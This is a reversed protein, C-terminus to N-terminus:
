RGKTTKFLSAYLVYMSRSLPERVQPPNLRCWRHLLDHAHRVNVAVTPMEPMGKAYNRVEEAPMSNAEAVHSAIDTFPPKENARGWSTELWRLKRRQALRRSISTQRVRWPLNVTPECVWCCVNDTFALMREDAGQVPWIVTIRSRVWWKRTSGLTHECEDIMAKDLLHAEFRSSASKVM